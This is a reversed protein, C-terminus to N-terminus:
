ALKRYREVEGFRSSGSVSGVVREIDEEGNAEGEWGAPWDERPIFSSRKM